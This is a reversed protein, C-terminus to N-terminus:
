ALLVPPARIAYPQQPQALPAAVAVPAPAPHRVSAAFSLAPAPPAGGGISAAVICSNCHALGGAHKGASQSSAEAPAHSYGHAVAIAQAAGLVLALWLLAIRGFRFRTLLAPAHPRYPMAPHYRVRDTGDNGRLRFGLAGM